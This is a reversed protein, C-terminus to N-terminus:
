YAINYDNKMLEAQPSYKWQATLNNDFPEWAYIFLDAQKKSM